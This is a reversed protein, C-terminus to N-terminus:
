DTLRQEVALEGLFLDLFVLPKHFGHLELDFLGTGQGLVTEGLTLDKGKVNQGKRM